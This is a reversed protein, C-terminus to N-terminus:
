RRRLNTGFVHDLLDQERPGAGARDVTEAITLHRVTNAAAEETFDGLRQGSEADIMTPTRHGLPPGSPVSAVVDPKRVMTTNPSPAGSLNVVEPGDSDMKDFSTTTGSSYSRTNRRTTM